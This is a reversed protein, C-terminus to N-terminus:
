GAGGGLVTTVDPCDHDESHLVPKSSINIYPWFNSSAMSLLREGYNNMQLLWNLLQFVFKLQKFSSNRQHIMRNNLQNRVM